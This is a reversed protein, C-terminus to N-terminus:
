YRRTSLFGSEHWKRHSLHRKAAPLTTNLKNKVGKIFPQWMDTCVSKVENRQRQTLSTQCLEDVSDDSRGEVVEIVIGTQQDSLISIYGHGKQVAKEDISLYYYRDSPCRRSLGYAVSQHM